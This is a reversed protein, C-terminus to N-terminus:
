KFLSKTNIQKQQYGTKSKKKQTSRKLSQLLISEEDSSTLVTQKNM